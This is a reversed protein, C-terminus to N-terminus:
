EWGWGKNPWEAQLERRFRLAWAESLQDALRAYRPAPIVVGERGPVELFALIRRLTGEFDAVFDEYVVTLPTIGGAALFEQIGAERLDAELLLQRIADFRYDDRRPNEGDRVGSARHWEGSRIARWWSVALRVRNRRTLFIHKCNPLAHQWAAVRPHNGQPCGPLTPLQKTMMTNHPESFSVKLGFVGNPTTGSQWIKQQLTAADDADFLRRLDFTAYDNLLETPRGAIGTDALAGCLLTSGTRQSFWIIYSQKPRV